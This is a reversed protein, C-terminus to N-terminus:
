LAAVAARTTAKRELTVGRLRGADGAQAFVDDYAECYALRERSKCCGVSFKVLGTKPDLPSDDESLLGVVAFRPRGRALDREADDRGRQAAATLEPPVPLITCGAAGALAAALAITAGRTLQGARRRPDVRPGCGHRIAVSVARGSAHARRFRRREDAHGLAQALSLEAVA